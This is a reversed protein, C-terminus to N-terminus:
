TYRDMKDGRPLVISANLYVYASFDPTPELDEPLKDPTVEVVDNHGYMEFTPTEEMNIDDFDKVVVKPGLNDEIKKDFDRRLYEEDNMDQATLSRYTSQHFVEGNMKLIKATLSPGTDIAPGLYRKPYYKDEPFSNGSPDYLKIWDYWGNISITIIEATDGTTVTDPVERNLKCIDLAMHSRILGELGLCHDWIRRPSGSKTM